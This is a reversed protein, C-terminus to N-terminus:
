NSVNLCAFNNLTVAKRPLHNRAFLEAKQLLKNSTKFDDNQLYTMALLNCMENLIRCADEVEDSDPGFYNRRFVLSREMTEIAMM